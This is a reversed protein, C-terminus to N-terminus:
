EQWKPPLEVDLHKHLNIFFDRDYITLKKLVHPYLLSRFKDKDDFIKVYNLVNEKLILDFNIDNINELNVRVFSGDSYRFQKSLHYINPKPLKIFPGIDNLVFCVALFYDDQYKSEFCYVMCVLSPKELYFSKYKFRFDLPLALKLKEDIKKRIHNNNEM